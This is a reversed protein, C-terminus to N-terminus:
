VMNMGILGLTGISLALLNMSVLMGGSMASTRAYRYM